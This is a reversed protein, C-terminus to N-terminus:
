PSVDPLGMLLDQAISQRSRLLERAQEILVENKCLEEFKERVEKAEVTLGNRQGWQEAQQIALEQVTYELPTRRLYGPRPKFQYKDIYINIGNQLRAHAEASLMGYEDIEKNVWPYVNNRTNEILLQNLAAAEGATCVHGEFYERSVEFRHQRIQLILPM